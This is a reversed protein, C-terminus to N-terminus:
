KVPKNLVIIIPDFRNTIVYRGDEKIATIYRRYRKTLMNALYTATQETTLFMTPMNVEKRAWYPPLKNIM